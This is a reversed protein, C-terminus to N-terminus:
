TVAPDCPNPGAKGQYYGPHAVCQETGCVVCTAGQQPCCTACEAVAANVGSASTLSVPTLVGASGAAAFLAAMALRDLM